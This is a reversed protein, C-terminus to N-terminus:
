GKLGGEWGWGGSCVEAPHRPVPGPSRRPFDRLRGVLDHRGHVSVRVGDMHRDRWSRGLVFRPPRAEAGHM